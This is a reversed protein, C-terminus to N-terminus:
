GIASTVDFMPLFLSIAVSGVVVGMLILITPEFLKTVTNLLEENDEDLVDAVYTMAGGLNGSEEGTRVAQCIYAPVFGASELARSLSGGSTVETELGAYLSQFRENSTVGRVLDIADLLGVRSELLMGMVRFTEGLILGDILKGVVPIYTLSNLLWKRGAASGLATVTGVLLISTGLTCVLWHSKMFSASSLLMATSAPVDVGMTKFMDGFRPLVFFLLVNIIATSLTMLLAPYVMAGMVKNRMIRRKGVVKAQRTFMEGLTGSAEGAAIIACYSSGFVRPYKRLADTLTNGEELEYCLQQIMRVQQPKTFQRGISQLAPVVGSGSSLLMAMQRTFMTLQKGALRVHRADNASAAARKAPKKDSRPAANTVFLDRKRLTDVASRVDPAELCDTVRRGAGDVAEFEVIM